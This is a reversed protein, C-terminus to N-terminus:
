PTWAAGGVPNGLGHELQFRFSSWDHLANWRLVPLMVLSAVLVALWPGPTRLLAARRRPRWSLRRPAGLPLVIGTYKSAMALGTAVGAALWWALPRASIGDRAGRCAACHGRVRPPARRTHGPPLRGVHGPTGRLRAGCRRGRTRDALNSALRMVAWGGALGCLVPWFRVGLPTDGLLVTGARILLAIIPPHDFYGASLHRSWEWYYAEDPHLPVVAAVALRVAAALLLVLVGIAPRTM